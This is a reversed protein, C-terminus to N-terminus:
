ATSGALAATMKDISANVAAASPNDEPLRAPLLSAVDKGAKNAARVDAGAAVLKSAAEIAADDYGPGAAAVVLVHLPTDGDKDAAKAADPGSKALLTAFLESPLKWAYHLALRGSNDAATADAGAELLLQVPTATAAAPAMWMPRPPSPKFAAVASTLVSRGEKDRADKNAGLEILLQLGSADSPDGQAAMGLLAPTGNPDGPLSHDPSVGHAVLLRMFAPASGLLALSYAFAGCGGREACEFNADVHGEELLVRACDLYLNSWPAPVEYNGGMMKAQTAMPCAMLWQLLSLAVVGVHTDRGNPGEIVSAAAAGEAICWRVLAVSPPMATVAGALIANLAAARPEGALGSKALLAQASRYGFKGTHTFLKTLADQATPLQYGSDMLLETVAAAAEGHMAQTSEMLTIGPGNAAWQLDAHGDVILVRAADAIKQAAEEADPRTYPMGTIFSSQNTQQHLACQRTILLFLAPVATLGMAPEPTADNADAGHALCWKIQAATPLGKDAGPGVLVRLIKTSLAALTIPAGADDTITAPDLKEVLVDTIEVSHAVAASLLNGLAAKTPLQAGADLLVHVAAASPKYADLAVHLMSKAEPAGYLSASVMAPQNVDAGKGVCWQAKKETPHTKLVGEALLWHSLAPLGMQQAAQEGEGCITAVDAHEVLYEVVELGGDGETNLAASLAYKLERGTLMPAGADVLARVISVSGAKAAEALATMNSGNVKMRTSAGAALMLQVAELNGATAASMLPTPSWTEGSENDCKTCSAGAKLLLLMCENPDTSLDIADAADVGADLLLKVIDAYGHAAAISLGHVDKCTNLLYGHPKRMGEGCTITFAGIPKCSAYEKSGAKLLIDVVETWGVVTAVHLATCTRWEPLQEGEGAPTLAAQLPAGKALADKVKEVDGARAADFLQEELSKEAM